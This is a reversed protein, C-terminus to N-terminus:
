PIIFVLKVNYTKFNDNVTIEEVRQKLEQVSIPTDFKCKL